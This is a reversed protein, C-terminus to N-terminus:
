IYKIKYSNYNGRCSFRKEQKSHCNSHKNIFGPKKNNIKPRFTCEELEKEEQKDMKPESTLSSRHIKNRRSITSSSNLRDFVSRNLDEIPYKILKEQSNDLDNCNLKNFNSQSNIKLNQFDSECTKNYFGTSLTNCYNKAYADNITKINLLKNEFNKNTIEFNYINKSPSLNSDSNYKSMKIRRIKDRSYGKVHKRLINEIKTRAKLNELFVSKFINQKNSVVSLIKRVSDAKKM